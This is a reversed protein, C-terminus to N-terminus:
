QVPPLVKRLFFKLRELGDDFDKANLGSRMFLTASDLNEKQMLYYVKKLGQPLDTLNVEVNQLREVERYVDLVLFDIPDVPTLTAKTKIKASPGIGIISDISKLKSLLRQMESKFILENVGGRDILVEDFKDMLSQLYTVQFPNTELYPVNEFTISSKCSAFFKKQAEEQAPNAYFDDFSLESLIPGVFVAAIQDIKPELIELEEDSFSDELLAEFEKQFSIVVEELITVKHPLYFNFGSMTRRKVSFFFLSIM